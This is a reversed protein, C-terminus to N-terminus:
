VFYRSRVDAPVQIFHLLDSLASVVPTFIQKSEMEESFNWDNM